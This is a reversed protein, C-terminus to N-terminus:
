RLLGNKSEPVVEVGRQTGRESTGTETECQKDQSDWKKQSDAASFVSRGAMSNARPSAKQGGGKGVERNKNKQRHKRASV